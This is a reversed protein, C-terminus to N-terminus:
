WQQMDLGEWAFVGVGFGEVVVAGPAAGEGFGVWGEEFAEPFPLCRLDEPDATGVGAARLGGDQAELGALDEAMAVDGVDDDGRVDVREGDDLVGHLVQFDLVNDDASV